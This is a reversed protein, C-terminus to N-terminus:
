AHAYFWTLPVRILGTGTRGQLIGKGSSIRLTIWATDDRYLVSPYDISQAPDHVLIKRHEYPWSRGGDTSVCAAITNRKGALVATAEYYPSWLLLLHDTGPIRSLHAPAVPSTIELSRPSTWTEGRDFSESFFQTGMATRITMLLSGDAREAVGPEICGSELANSGTTGEPWRVRPLEIPAATTQWTAGLDDSWSARVKIHHLDWDETCHLPAILRGTSLVTLRDNCGTMYPEAGNSVLVPESWTRGEDKSVSFRRSAEKTGMRYSFAMGISGDGLRQLAPSLTNLGGPPSPIVLRPEGTPAGAATLERASIFGHANDSNGALDCWVLLVNGNKLSVASAESRRQYDPTAPVVMDPTFAYCARRAQASYLDRYLLANTTAPRSSLARATTSGASGAFIRRAALLTSGAAFSKVFSRRDLPFM